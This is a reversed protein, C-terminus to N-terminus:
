AHHLLNKVNDNTILDMFKQPYNLLKRVRVKPHPTHFHKTIYGDAGVEYGEMHHEGSGRTTLIVFPIHCTAPASKMKHCLELGNMNPMMVDCIVLDPLVRDMLELAKRGDEAEYITYEEKLIDKLLYRIEPEDEVILM